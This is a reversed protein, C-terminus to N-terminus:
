QKRQDDVAGTPTSWGYKYFIAGNKDQSITVQYYFTSTGVPGRNCELGVPQYNPTTLHIVCVPDGATADVVLTGDNPAQGAPTITFAQSYYDHWLKFCSGSNQTESYLTQSQGAELVTTNGLDDPYWCDTSGPGITVSANTNNTFQGYWGIGANAASVHMTMPWALIAGITLRSLKM